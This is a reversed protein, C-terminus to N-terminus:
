QGGEAPAPGEQLLQAFERALAVRDIEDTDMPDEVEPDPEPEGPDGAGAGSWAIEPENGREPGEGGRLSLRQEDADAIPPPEGVGLEPSLMEGNSGPKTVGASNGDGGGRPTVNDGGQPGVELTEELSTLYEALAPTDEPVAPSAVQEPVTVAAWPEEPPPTADAWAQETLPTVAVRPEEEPPNPDTRTQETYVNVAARFEEASASSTARLSKGLRAAKQSLDVHAPESMASRNIRAEDAVLLAQELYGILIGPRTGSDAVAFAAYSGERVYAWIEDPYQVFGRDPDGLQAFRLLGPTIDGEGNPPFSGLVLGDSSLIVCGLVEARAAVRSALATYDPDMEGRLM